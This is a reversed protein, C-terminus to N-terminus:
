ELRIAPIWDVHRKGNVDMIEECMIMGGTVDKSEAHIIQPYSGTVITYNYTENGIFTAPSSFTLYLWDGTYGNWSEEVITETGKWIKVYETHGGTGTCPYTYLRSATLNCSPTITGNHTDSISPYTGAGTDFVLPKVLPLWDGGNQINGSANYPLMTDGFGDENTDSGAYDSWYNGGLWSGGVINPGTSNTLNWLNNGNDFANKTNEFYNNYIRNDTCNTLKIGYDANGSVIDRRISNHTSDRVNFGILNHSARNNALSNNHSYLLVFGSANNNMVTCNEILSDNTFVIALPDGQSFSINRVTVNTCGVIGIKNTVYNDIVLNSQNYFYYVPLGNATNSDDITNNWEELTLSDKLAINFFFNNNMSNSRLTNYSSRRLWIGYNGNNSVTNNTLRNYRSEGILIGTANNANATNKSLTNNDCSDKLFLGVLSNTSVNNGILTNNSSNQLVIGNYNKSAKNYSLNCYTVGLLLIGNRRSETAGTVTFGTLNVYNARVEFVQDSPNTAHVITSDSGNEARITLSKFVDVNEYYTGDGVTITHGDFTDSDAIAAQITSFNEGTDLNHVSANLTQNQVIVVGTVSPHLADHYPYTGPTNFTYYFSQEDSLNGSDWLGTDSTVTHLLAERNSWKVTTGPSVTRIGPKYANLNIGVTNPEGYEVLESFDRFREYYTGEGNADLTYDVPYEFYIRVDGLISDTYEVLSQNSGSVSDTYSGYNGEVKLYTWYRTKLPTKPIVTMNVSASYNQGIVPNDFEWEIVESSSEEIYGPNTATAVLLESSAHNTEEASMQFQLYNLSDTPTTYVTMTITENGDFVEKEVSRSTSFPPTINHTNLEYIGLEFESTVTENNGTWEIHDPFAVINGNGLDEDGDVHYYFRDFNLSSTNFITVKPVTFQGNVADIELVLRYTLDSSTSSPFSGNAVYQPKMFDQSTHIYIESNSDGLRASNAASACGVSANLVAVIAIMVGFILVKGCKRRESEM